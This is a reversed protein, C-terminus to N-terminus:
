CPFLLNTTQRLPLRKGLIYDSFRECAWTTALAEKEIQAYRMETETMSRSAYAVPKWEEGNVKQLLIAGLGYASADASLTTDASPDYWALVTPSTLAAKLKQFASAQSPGWLWTSQKSLLERLPKSLEAIEPTFKGLQNVMGLFRRLETTTTSTKMSAIAKVKNPDPSVGDASIIHGLFSLTSKGFQCKERNLHYRNDPPTSAHCSTTAQTGAPKGM